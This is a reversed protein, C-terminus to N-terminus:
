SGGGVREEWVEHKVESLGIQAVLYVHHPGDVPAPNTYWPAM